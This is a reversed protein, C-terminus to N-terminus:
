VEKSYDTMDTITRKLVEETLGIIPDDQTFKNRRLFIEKVTRKKNFQVLHEVPESTIVPEFSDEDADIYACTGIMYAQENQKTYFYWGWDEEEVSEDVEHGLAMFEKRLLEALSHGYIPNITPREAKSFDFMQTSFRLVTM